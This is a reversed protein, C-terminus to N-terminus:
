TDATLSATKSVMRKRGEEEATRIFPIGLWIFGLVAHSAGVLMYWMRLPVIGGFAWAILLGLPMTAGDLSGLVSFVRGQMDAPVVSQYFANLPACGVPTMFGAIFIMGLFLAFLNGPAMSAIVYPIGIGIWGVASVILKRKFGKWVSMLLGGAIVGFGAAMSIYSLEIAGGDFIRTVLLPQFSHAPGIFVNAFTCTTVVWFLARWKWVFRLGERTDNLFAPKEEKPPPSPIRLIMLPIIALLATLIDVSLVLHIPFASILLAGAPPAVIRIIGGLTQNMGGIRTLQSEPVMLTTTAVMAPSQFTGGVERFFMVLIIQWPHVMGFYFMAILAVTLAAVAADAILMIKKRSFRDVFTGSFPGLLISPLVTFFTSAALVSTSGTQVTLRWILAFSVLSSGFLSAAQGAWLTFFRLRWKDPAPTQSPTQAVATENAM